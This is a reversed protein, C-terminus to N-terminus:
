RDRDWMLRLAYREPDKAFLARCAEDSLNVTRGRWIVKASSATDVARGDVPCRLNGVPVAAGLQAPTPQLQLNTDQVTRKPHLRAHGRTSVAETIGAALLTAILFAHIKM